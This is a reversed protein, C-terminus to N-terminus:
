KVVTFYMVVGTYAVAAGVAVKGWFRAWKNSKTLTAIQEDKVQMNKAYNTSDNSAEMDKIGITKMLNENSEESKCLEEAQKDYAADKSLHIQNHYENCSDIYPQCPIPANERMKKILNANTRMLQKEHQKISDKEHKLAMKEKKLQTNENMLIAIERGAQKKEIARVFNLSDINEALQPKSECGRMFVLAIIILILGVIAGCQIGVNTRTDTTM